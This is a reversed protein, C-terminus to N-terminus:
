RLAVFSIASLRVIGAGGLESGAGTRLATLGGGNGGRLFGLPPYATGPPGV